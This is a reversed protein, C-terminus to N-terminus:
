SNEETQKNLEERLAQFEKVRAGLRKIEDTLHQIENEKVVMQDSYEAILHDLMGGTVSTGTTFISSQSGSARNDREQQNGVNASKNGVVAYRGSINDFEAKAEEARAITKEDQIGM